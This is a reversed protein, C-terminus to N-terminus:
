KKSHRAYANALKTHYGRSAYSAGNYKRAFAAWNKDKLSQLMGSNIILEAFLDLQSRESKSMKRVFEEHSKTGCLKYNFGGIQFMGWFTGEIASIPDITMAADLRAQQAAQQSGYKATNPRNFIVAHSKRYRSLNINRKAARKQYISLDFNILPKGETWFGKHAAGAEIDVVAKIAAPEVGLRKAVEEYDEDSLKDPNHDNIDPNDDSVIKVTGPVVDVVNTSDPDSAAGRTSSCGAFLTVILLSPFLRMTM